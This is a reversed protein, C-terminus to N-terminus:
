TWCRTYRYKQWLHLTALLFRKNQPELYNNQLIKTMVTKHTTVYRVNTPPCVLTTPSFSAKIESNCSNCGLANKSVSFYFWINCIDWLCMKINCLNTCNLEGVIIARLEFERLSTFYKVVGFSVGIIKYFNHQRNRFQLHECSLKVYLIIM